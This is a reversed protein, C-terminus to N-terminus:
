ILREKLKNYTFKLFALPHRIILHFNNSLKLPEAEKEFAEEQHNAADFIKTKTRDIIDKPLNNISFWKGKCGPFEPRFKGSIVRGEFLYSKHNILNYVGCYDTIKVKFGTEEYAERIAAQEPTENDEIAGGTTVWIPYDSRFVLFVEKKANNKFLVVTSGSKVM